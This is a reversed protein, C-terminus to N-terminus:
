RNKISGAYYNSSDVIETSRSGNNIYAYKLEYPSSSNKLLCYTNKKINIAKSNYFGANGDTEFKRQGHAV